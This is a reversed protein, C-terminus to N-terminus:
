RRMRSLRGGTTRSGGQSAAAVKPALQQVLGLAGSLEPALAGVIPSAMKAVDGLGSAFRHVFNKFGKMFRGNLRGGHLATYVAHSSESDGQQASLVM